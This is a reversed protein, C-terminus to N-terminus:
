RKPIFRGLRYGVPLPESLAHMKNSTGDTIWGTLRGFRWGEPLPESKPIRAGETGNTIWVLNSTNAAQKARVEPRSNVETMTASRNAKAEPTSFAKTLLVSQRQRLEPDAWAERISQSIAAHKDPDSWMEKTRASITAKFEPSDFIAQRKAAVEPRAFAAARTAQFEPTQWRALARQRNLELIDPQSAYTLLAQRHKQKTIPDAMKYRAIAAMKSRFEDSSHSLIQLQRFEEGYNGSGSMELVNYGNRVSDHDQILIAEVILLEIPDGDLSYFVPELLFSSLGHKLLANKFKRPSQGKAHSRTRKYVDSNGTLGGVGLYPKGNVLNTFRYGGPRKEPLNWPYVRFGYWDVTEEM